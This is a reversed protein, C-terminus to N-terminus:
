KKLHLGNKQSQGMKGVHGMKRFTVWKETDSMKGLTVWKDLNSENKWTHGM